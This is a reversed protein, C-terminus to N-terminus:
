SAAVFTWWIVSAARDARQLRSPEVGAASGARRGRCGSLNLEQLAKLRTFSAPLETLKSCGSFDLEQLAVLDGFSAPLTKLQLCNSADLLSLNQLRGLAEPLEKLGSCCSMTLVRLAAKDIFISGPTDSFDDSFFTQTSGSVDLHLLEPMKCLLEATILLEVYPERGLRPMIFIRCKSYDMNALQQAEQSLLAVQRDAYPMYLNVALVAQEQLL